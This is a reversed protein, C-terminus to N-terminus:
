QRTYWPLIRHSLVKSAPTSAPPGEPPNALSLSDHGALTTAATYLLGPLIQVMYLDATQEKWLTHEVLMAREQKALM